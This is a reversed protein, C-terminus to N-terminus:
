PVEKTNDDFVVEEENKNKKNKFAVRDKFKIRFIISLLLCLVFMAGLIMLVYLSLTISAELGAAQITQQYFFFYMYTLGIAIAFFWFTLWSFVSISKPHKIHGIIIFLLSILTAFVAFIASIGLICGLAFEVKDHNDVIIKLLQNSPSAGSDLYQTFQAFEPKNFSTLQNRFTFFVFDLGKFTVEPNEPFKFTFMPFYAFAALGAVVALAFLAYIFVGLGHPRYTRVGRRTKKAM